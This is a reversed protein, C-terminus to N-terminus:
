WSFPNLKAAVNTVKNAVNSVVKGPTALVKGVVPIHELSSNIKNAVGIGARAVSVPAASAVRAVNTVTGGIIPINQLVTGPNALHAVTSTVSGGAGTVQSPPPPPPNSYVEGTAQSVGPAAQNLVAVAQPQEPLVNRRMVLYIIIAIAAIILLIHWTEM